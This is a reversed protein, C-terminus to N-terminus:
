RCRSPLRSGSFIGPSKLQLWTSLPSTLEVLERAKARRHNETEDNVEAYYNDFHNQLQGRKQLHPDLALAPNLNPYRDKRDQYRIYNDPKQGDDETSLHRIHMELDEDVNYKRLHVDHVLSHFMM